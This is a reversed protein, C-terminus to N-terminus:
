KSSFARSSMASNSSTWPTTRETPRKKTVLRSTTRTGGCCSCPTTTRAMSPDPLPIASLDVLARGNTVDREDPTVLRGHPPDVGIHHRHATGNAHLQAFINLNGGSSVARLEELDAEAAEVMPANGDAEAGMFVMVTWKREGAPREESATRANSM